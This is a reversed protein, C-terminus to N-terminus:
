RAIAEPYESWERGDLRRGALKKGLKWLIENDPFRVIPIGGDRSYGEENPSFEGWQKFFFPVGAAHCQDRLSRAWDPHMPRAHPGSEGGVIVWDIFKSSALVLAQPKMGCEAGAAKAEAYSRYNGRWWGCAPWLYRSANIPGLMPEISLGRCAAPTELLVPILKDVEDQNVVTVMERVNPLPWPKVSDDEAFKAWTFPNCTEVRVANQVSAVQVWVYWACPNSIRKSFNPNNPRSFWALRREPRKTLVMFTHQPCLAMVAYIRDIWEDPVWSGYLDTMSCVFINTPKKLRLPELLAKEDLYVDLTRLDSDNYAAGNGIWKNRREAYCNKCGPSVKQCYWGQKGDGKFRARIPNWSKGESGDSNRTWEIKTSNM